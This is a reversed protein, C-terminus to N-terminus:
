VGGRRMWVRWMGLGDLEFMMVVNILKNQPYSWATQLLCMFLPFLSIYMHLSICFVFLRVFPSFIVSFWTLYYSDVQLLCVFCVFLFVLLCSILEHLYSDM